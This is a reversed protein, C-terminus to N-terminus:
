REPPVKRVRRSGLGIVTAMTRVCSDFLETHHEIANRTQGTLEFSVFGFLQTWAAAVAVVVRDPLVVGLAEGVRDLDTRLRPSVDAVM